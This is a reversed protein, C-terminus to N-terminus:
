LRVVNLIEEVRHWRELGVPHQWIVPATQRALLSRPPTALLHKGGPCGYIRHVIRHDPVGFRLVAGVHRIVELEGQLLLQEALDRM